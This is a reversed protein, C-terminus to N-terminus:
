FKIIARLVRLLYLYFISRCCQCPPPPLAIIEVNKAIRSSAEKRNYNIARFSPKSAIMGISNRIYFTMFAAMFNNARAGPGVMILDRKASVPGEGIFGSRNGSLSSIPIFLFKEPYSHTINM